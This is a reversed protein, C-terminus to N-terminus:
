YFIYLWRMSQWFFLSLFFFPSFSVTQFFSILFWITNLLHLNRHCIISPQHTLSYAWWIPFGLSRIRAVTYYRLSILPILSIIPGDTSSHPRSCKTTMPYSSHSPEHSRRNNIPAPDSPPWLIPVTVPSMSGDTSSHPRSCKPTMPYSSHRPEHSRRNIFPSPLVQHDHSLFQAQAWPVTQQHIPIPASPLYPIPVTGARM